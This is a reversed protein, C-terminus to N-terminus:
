LEKEIHLKNGFKWHKILAEKIWNTPYVYDNCMVTNALQYCKEITKETLFTGFLMNKQMLRAWYEAFLIFRPNLERQKEFETRSKESKFKM